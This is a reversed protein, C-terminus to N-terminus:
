RSRQEGRVMRGPIEHREYAPSANKTLEWALASLRWAEEVRERLSRQDRTDVVPEEGLRFRRIPWQARAQRKAVSSTM